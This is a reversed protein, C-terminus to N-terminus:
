SLRQLSQAAQMVTGRDPGVIAVFANGVTMELSVPGQEVTILTAQRGAVTVNERRPQPGQQGGPGPPPGGTQGQPPPPSIVFISLQKPPQNPDPTRNPDAPQAYSVALTSRRGPPGNLEEHTIGVLGMGAFEPGLWYAPPDTFSRAEAETLVRTKRHLWDRAVTRSFTDAPVASRPIREITSYRVRTSGVEQLAGSEAPQFLREQLLLGHSKELYRVVRGGDPASLEIRWAAVGDITEEGAPTVAGTDMAMKHELIAQAVPCLIPGPAEPPALVQTEAVRQSTLFITAERGSCVTAVEGQADRVNLRAEYSTPDFWFELTRTQPQGQPGTVTEEARFHLVDTGAVPAPPPGPQAPPAAPPSPPAAPPAPPQPEVPRAAPPPESPAPPPAEAVPPPCAAESAEFWWTYALIEGAEDPLFVSAEHLGPALPPVPTYILEAWSQPFDATGSVETPVDIGDVALWVVAPNLAGGDRMADTLPLSVRIPDSPCIAGGEPPYTSAQEPLQGLLRLGSPVAPAVEAPAGSLAVEAQGADQASDMPSGPSPNRAQSNSEVTRASAASPREFLSAAYPWVFVVIVALALLGVLAQVPRRM